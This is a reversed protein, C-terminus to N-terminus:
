AFGEDMKRMTDRFLKNAEYADIAKPSYFNNVVGARAGSNYEQAENKTLVREGEHLTARYGNYPVYALGDAHSGESESRAESMGDKIGQLFNRVSDVVGSFWGSISDWVGKMGDWLSNFLSSGANFMEGAISTINGPISRIYDMIKGPLSAILNVMNNVFDSAISTAASRMDSGWSRVDSIATSLFSKIKGPLNQIFSIINNVFATAISTANSKMEAGWTKVNNIVSTLWSMVKSPLTRIQNIIYNVFTTAISTAAKLMDSGWSKTKQLTSTLWQYVKGPLTMFFQIIKNIIIPIQKAVYNLMDAGWQRIKELAYGIAYGIKYPLENFWTVIKNIFEPVTVNVFNNFAEPVTVTFFTVIKNWLKTLFTGIKTLMGGTFSEVTVFIGEFFGTVFAKITEILNTIVAWLDEKLSAFANKLKTFDGTIIGEVFGTIINAIDSIVNIVSTITDILPGLAKVVGNIAGIVTLIVPVVMSALQVALVEFLFKGIPELAELLRGFADVLKSMASDVATFDFSNKITEIVPKIAEKVFEFARKLANLTNELKGKLTAVLRDVSEKFKGNQEYLAKFAVVLGAVAAAVAIIPAAASALASLGATIGGAGSSVLGFAKAIGTAWSIFSTGTKILTGVSTLLKGVVMLVPGIAAAIGAWKLIQTKQEKDMATFVKVLEQFKKLFKEVYPTVIDSIQIALTTLNSKLITIMGNLNDLMKTATDAAYTSEGMETVNKTFEKIDDSGTTLAMSVAKISRATFTTLLASSKEASGMGETAKEVDGLIDTLDRFNGNLDDVPVLVNGIQIANRGLIDNWDGTVSVLGGEAAAAVDAEDKFTTMKQTIDRITASLATGAESGKLGQDALKGLIGVTTEMSQGATHMQAASNKFAEGAQATTMNSNAQAYALENAMRASDKAELGFASLYDTVLDSAEALGMESAAALDLVGQIGDLMEETKWGALAMYGFADAAETASFSTKDGMEIAKNRLADFSDGTAGSLASVKSMSADFEQGLKVAATIAGTIPMTVSKTLSSGAKSISAGAATFGDAVLSTKNKLSDLESQATKIGSSFGDTKMKLEAYATGLNVSM